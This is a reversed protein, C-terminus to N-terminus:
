FELKLMFYTEESPNALYERLQVHNTLDRLRSSDTKCYKILNNCLNDNM